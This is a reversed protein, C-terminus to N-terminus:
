YQILVAKHPGQYVFMSGAAVSHAGKIISEQFDQKNKAGGLLVIPVSIKDKLAYMLNYDLGQLMGDNDISHLIIEGCSIEKSLSIIGDISIKIKEKGNKKYFNWKKFFGLSYDISLSVAQAGYMKSIEFSDQPNEFALTNIIVKEAGSHFIRHADDIGRIGGGYGVPMQCESLLTEIFQFDPGTKFLGPTIDCIILEDVEKDNFIKVANLPDGIYKPNKFNKTKVLRGNLIQLVPIRRPILM